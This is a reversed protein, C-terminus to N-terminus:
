LDTYLGQLSSIDCQDILYRVIDNRNIEQRYRQWFETELDRLKEQQAKTLYFSVKKDKLTSTDIEHQPAPASTASQHKVTNRDLPKVTTEEASAATTATAQRQAEQTARIFASQRKAM